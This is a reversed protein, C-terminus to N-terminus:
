SNQVLNPEHDWLWYVPLKILESLYCLIGLDNQWWNFEDFIENPAGAVEIVIPSGKFVKRFALQARRTHFEDTVIIIREWDRQKPFTLLDEAEDFTSTAGGTTSPLVQWSANLKM